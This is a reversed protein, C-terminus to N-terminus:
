EFCISFSVIHFRPRIPSRTNEILWTQHYNWTAAGMKIVDHLLCNLRAIGSFHSPDDPGELVDQLESGKMPLLGVPSNPRRSILQHKELCSIKCGPM